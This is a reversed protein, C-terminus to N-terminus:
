LRTSNPNRKKWHIQRGSQQEWVDLRSRIALFECSDTPGGEGIEM